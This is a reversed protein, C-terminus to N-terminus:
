LWGFILSIPLVILVTCIFVAILIFTPVGVFMALFTFHPHRFAFREMDQNLKDEVRHLLKSIATM